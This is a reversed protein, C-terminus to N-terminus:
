SPALVRLGVTRAGAALRDDYTILADLEDGIRLATALHIADLSRLHPPDLLGAQTRITEDVEIVALHAVVELAQEVLDPAHRRVARVIEVEVVASAIQEHDHRLQERLADSQPEAVVLKILASSDLYIV